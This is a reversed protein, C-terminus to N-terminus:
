SDQQKECGTPTNSWDVGGRQWLFWDIWAAGGKAHCQTRQLFVVQKVLTPLIKCKCPKKGGRVGWGEGKM